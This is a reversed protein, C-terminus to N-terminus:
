MQSIEELFNERGHEKSHRFVYRERSKVNFAAFLITILSMSGLSVSLQQAKIDYLSPNKDDAFNINGLLYLLLADKFHKCNVDNKSFWVQM